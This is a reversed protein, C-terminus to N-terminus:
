TFYLVIAISLPM